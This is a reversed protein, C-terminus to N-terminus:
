AILGRRKMFNQLIDQHPTVGAEEKATVVTFTQGAQMLTDRAWAIYSLVALATAIVRDDHSGGRGELQAGDRAFYKMEDLHDTSRIELKDGMWLDKMRNLMLEKQESGTKSHYAFSKSLSDDRSYFHHKFGSLENAFEAGAAASSKLVHSIENFVANGPGTLEVNVRVNRYTGVLHLLVWAFQATGVGAASFEAVQVLRDAYCRYVIATSYDSDENYGYAPDAGVVYVGSVNPKEWVKLDANARTTSHLRTDVFDNGFTYRYCEYKEKIAKKYEITLKEPSFFKYGSMVWGIEETNHTLIGNADFAHGDEIVLNYVPEFGDEVVSIVKDIMEIPRTMYSKKRNIGLVCRAQKRASLFGIEKSFLETEEKRLSLTNIPFSEIKGNDRKKKSVSSTLKSTIGFCLLLLQIDQLFDKHKSSVSAYCGNKHISGDTEFIGSIFKAIIHKPSKFIYEPVHVHRATKGSDNRILGLRKFIITLFTSAVRIEKGRPSTQRVDAKLGFLSDILRVTEEIFDEDDMTCAISLTGCGSHASRSAKNISFSGDGMFIGVFKALDEGIIIKSYVLCESWMVQTAYEATMPPQLRITRGVSEKLDVLTNDATFIPHNHTGRLTYGLSTTMKYIRAEGTKGTNLIEGKTATIGSYADVIKILGDETGVRTEDTVCTPHEQHLANWDGHKKEHLQLRFWAWQEPQIEYGFEAKVERALRGEEVSLKGDWYVRYENTNREYRYLDHRWWGIFIFAQTTAKKADQCADYFHNFGNPTSEYLFLRNPHIHACSDRLKSLQKEDAWSGVETNISFNLGKGQGLDGADAKKRKGAVLYSLVSRNLLELEYINHHEIGCKMNRPLYKLMQSLISRARNINSADDAIMAGLTGPFKNLWYAAVAQDLTTLGAQRCKMTWFERIGKDIGKRIEQLAYTQTGWFKLPVVGFEKSNIKLNQCFMEFKSFPDSM